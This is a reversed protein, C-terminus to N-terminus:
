MRQSGITFDVILPFHDSGVNPGIHRNLITIESSYLCHDIPIRLLFLFSPWTAQIGYGRCSDRLGSQKLLDRFHLSWPTTNLDGLVIVPTEINRIYESLSSLQENRLYAYEAGVPPLPHTALVTLMSKGVQLQTVISPVGAKGIATIDATKLPSKSFLAIGFNDERSKAISYPYDIRLDGLNRIWAANVEELVLIDPDNDKIVKKVLDYKENNTNINLLLARYHKGYSKKEVNAHFYGPIIFLFNLLSFIIFLAAEKYRRSIGCAVAIGFLSLFYQVRFHSTLDLFWWYRGAFGTVSTICIITGGVSLLRFLQSKLCPEPTM